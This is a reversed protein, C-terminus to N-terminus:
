FVDCDAWSIFWKKPDLLSPAIPKLATDRLFVAWPRPNFRKVFRRFGFKKLCKPICSPTDSWLYGIIDMDADIFYETASSVLANCAEVDFPTHFIDVIVGEELGEVAAKIYVIYGRLKGSPDTATVFHYTRDPCKGFRWELFKKTRFGINQFRKDPDNLVEQWLKDLTTPYVEVEKLDISDSIKVSKKRFLLSQTSNAFTGLRPKNLVELVKKLNLIKLYVPIWGMNSYGIKLGAQYTNKNPFALNYKIAKLITEQRAKTHLSSYVGLGRLDERVIADASLSIFTQQGDIMYPRIILGLQGIINDEVKASISISDWPGQFYKWDFHEVGFPYDFEQILEVIRALEARKSSYVEFKVQRNNNIQSIM